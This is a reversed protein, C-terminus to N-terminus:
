KSRDSPRATSSGYRGWSRTSQASKSGRSILHLRYDRVDEFTLKDPSRGHFTSFHVVARVYIKQTSPSLNRITMYDIMRRRLPTMQKSMLYEQINSQVFVCDQSVLRKAVVLAERGCPARFYDQAVYLSHSQYAM